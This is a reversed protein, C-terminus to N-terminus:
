EIETVTLKGKVKEAAFSVSKGPALGEVMAPEAVDYVMTMADMKLSAIPGHKITLKNRKADVKVIEGKAMEAAVAPVTALMSAAVLLMVIKKM